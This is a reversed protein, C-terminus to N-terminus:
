TAVPWEQTNVHLPPAFNSKKRLFHHTSYHFRKLFHARAQSSLTLVDEHNDHEILPRTRFEFDASTELTTIDQPMAPPDIPLQPDAM